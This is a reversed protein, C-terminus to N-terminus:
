TIIFMNGTRNRYHCECEMCATGVTVGVIVTVLKADIKALAYKICWFILEM